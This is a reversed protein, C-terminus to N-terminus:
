FFLEIRSLMDKFSGTVVNCDPLSNLFHKGYSKTVIRKDMVVVVGKDTKSRILRGFGQKFKLVAHPVSYALFSNIGQNELHETRAEVIPDTPVKFPLRMIVVLKLSDGTIDIGEWFSDTAFLASNNIKKFKNILKDRPEAGQVM